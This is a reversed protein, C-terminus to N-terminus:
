KMMSNVRSPRISSIVTIPPLAAPFSPRCRAQRVRRVADGSVDLIRDADGRADPGYGGPVSSRESPLALRTNSLRGPFGLPSGFLSSASKHRGLRTCWAVAWGELRPLWRSPIFIGLHSRLRGHGQRLDAPGSLHPIFGAKLEWPELSYNVEMQAEGEVLKARCTAACGARAHLRCIWARACRRM